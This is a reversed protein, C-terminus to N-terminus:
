WAGFSNKEEMPDSAYNFVSPSCWRELMRELRDLRNSLASDVATHDVFPPLSTLTIPIQSILIDADAVTMTTLGSITITNAAGTGNALVQCCFSDIAVGSTFTQVESGGNFLSLPVINAGLASQYLDVNGTITSGVWNSSIVWNGILPLTFTNATVVTTLTSGARVLGGGTGLFKSGVATATGAPNSRIHAVLNAPAPSIVQQKPRIMTFSYTVYLEGIEASSSANGQTALQFLGVDYFKNNTSDTTPAILNASPNVFYNKLPDDALAHDGMLVDHVIECYPAGRDSNFYNEMQNDTSFNPDTPDYNTALIVKGASVNTGSAAYAETEYSFVIENARFQEYTAAIQSFIPFLVSNGPNLYLALNVNLSTSTTGIINSVKERRISFTDEIVSGNHITKMISIGDTVKSMGGFRANRYAVNMRGERARLGHGGARKLAKRRKNKRKRQAKAPMQARAGGNQKKNQAPKSGARKAKRKAKQAATKAM